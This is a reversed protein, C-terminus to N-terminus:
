LQMVLLVAWSKLIPAEEKLYPLVSCLLKDWMALSDDSIIVYVTIVSKLKCQIGDLDLCYSQLFALCLQTHKNWGVIFAQDGLEM